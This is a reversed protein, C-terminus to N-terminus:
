DHNGESANLKTGARSRRTGARRVTVASAFHCRAHEIVGIAAEPQELEENITILAETCSAPNTQFELEKYHLAKAFARCRTAVEGLNRIDLHLHLDSEDSWTSRM